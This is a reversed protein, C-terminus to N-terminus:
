ILSGFWVLALFFLLGMLIMVYGMSQHVLVYQSTDVWQWSQGDRFRVSPEPWINVPPDMGFIMRYSDLTKSYWDTFKESERAGGRTPGHHPEFPMYKAFDEWYRRTYILHLHWVQDVEISPTVPHGAVAMLYLFKRYEDIVDLAFWHAWRNERALRKSFTLPDSNDDFILGHIRLWIPDRSYEIQRNDDEVVAVVVAAVAVAAAVM